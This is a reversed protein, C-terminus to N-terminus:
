RRPPVRVRTLDEAVVIDGDFHKAAEAAFASPDDYRQSFHTLVLLRVQSEAAVRAAQAATLHGHATALDAESDLYTSEIVLMDAHDALAYV